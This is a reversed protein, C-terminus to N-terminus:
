RISFPFYKDNLKKYTGDAIIDKLALNLRARLNDNLRVAIGVQDTELIAEGKFEYAKGDPTRLWEYSSYKDGLVADINGATLAAFLAEQTEFEQVSAVESAHEQLWKAALTGAQAGVIKGMLTGTDSTVDSNPSAVFQLRNSYYPDTFDVLKKREETISLSSIVFDSQGQNLAPILDDWTNTVVDCEVKMKACLAQGIDIDFGVVQGSADVSSFPPHGGETGLKLREAAHAPLACVAGLAVALLWGTFRDM